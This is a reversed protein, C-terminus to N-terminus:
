LSNLLKQQFHYTTLSIGFLSGVILCRQLSGKFFAALGENRWTEIYITLLSRPAIKGVRADVWESQFRTKVVDMPTAIIAGISGAIFGAILNDLLESSVKKRNLSRHRILESVSAYSQFLIM